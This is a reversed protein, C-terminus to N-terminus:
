LAKKVNNIFKLDSPKLTMAAGQPNQGPKTVIVEIKTGPELDGGFAKRIFGFFEPHNGTFESKSDWVKKLAFPNLM